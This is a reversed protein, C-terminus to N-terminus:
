RRKTGRTQARRHARNKEEAATWLLRMEIERHSRNSGITKLDEAITATAARKRFGSIVILSEHRTWRSQHNTSAEM